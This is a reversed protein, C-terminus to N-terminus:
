SELLSKDLKSLEDAILADEVRQFLVAPTPLVQGVKLPTQLVTNWRAQSLPSVHGLMAFLAEATAPM